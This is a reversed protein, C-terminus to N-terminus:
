EDNLEHHYNDEIWNGLWQFPPFGTADHMAWLYKMIRTMCKNSSTM